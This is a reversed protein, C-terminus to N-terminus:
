KSLREKLIKFSKKLGYLQIYSLLRLYKNLQPKLILTTINDINKHFSIYEYLAPVRHELDPMQLYDGYLKRLYSDYKLPIFTEINEYQIRILEKFTNPEFNFENAYEYYPLALQVNDNIDELGYSLNYFQLFQSKNLNQYYESLSTLPITKKRYIHENAIERLEKNLQISANNNPIINVPRIDLKIPIISFNGKLRGYLNKKSCLYNCCHQDSANNNFWLYERSNPKNCHEKLLKVLKLYDPKLISIDIDDDWPIFGKHRIAGILTGGDIWYKIKNDLCIDDILKLLRLMEEKVEDMGNVVYYSIGKNKVLICKDTKKNFMGM